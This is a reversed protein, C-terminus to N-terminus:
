TNLNIQVLILKALSSKIGLIIMMMMIGKDDDNDINKM